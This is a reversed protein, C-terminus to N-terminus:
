AAVGIDLKEKLLQIARELAPDTTLPKAQPKPKGNAAAQDSESEPTEDEEEDYFDMLQYQRRNRVLYVEFVQKDTLKVECGHDPRVGWNDESGSIDASRDINRGKPSWYSAVTLKISSKGNEIPIVNQVTGKGYSREGVVTARRHDQLCAAVIESASASNRDILVVMPIEPDLLSKKTAYHQEIIRRGKGRTEVIKGKSNLLMDCIEVASSLLGGANYRLDLIVAEAQQNVVPLIERLEEATKDGFQTLHIYAIRKDEPILYKWNGDLLRHDGRVSKVPIMARKLDTTFEYGNSPRRISLRVAEGLPGRILQIAEARKLGKTPNGDIALILDGHRLGGQAAPTDPIPNSCRLQKTEPDVDVYMGVGGFEQRLEEEFERYEDGSIYRSHQDISSLMGDM